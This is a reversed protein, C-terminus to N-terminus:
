EELYAMSSEVFQSTVSVRLQGLNELAQKLTAEVEALRSWDDPEFAQRADLPTVLRATGQNIGMHFADYAQRWKTRIQEYHREQKDAATYKQIEETLTKVRETKQKLQDEKKAKEEELKQQQGELDKLTKELGDLKAKTQPTDEQLIQVKAQAIQEKEEELAKIANELAQLKEDQFKKKEQFLDLQQQKLELERSSERKAKEAEERVQEAKKLAEEAEKVKADKIAELLTIKEELAKTALDGSEVRQIITGSTSPAALEYLVSVSINDFNSLIKEDGFRKAVQVFNNATVQSMDFEDKIWPLFLGRKNDNEERLRAKVAILDQGIAIIDEATRKLRARISEAKVRLFIRTDEDLVGYDFTAQVIDSM